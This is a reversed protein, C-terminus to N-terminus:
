PTNNYKGRSVRDATGRERCKVPLLLLPLPLLLLLPLLLSSFSPLSPPLPFPCVLCQFEARHGSLPVNSPITWAVRSFLRLYFGRGRAGERGQLGM